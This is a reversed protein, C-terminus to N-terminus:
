DNFIDYKKLPTQPIHKSFNKIERFNGETPVELTIPMQINIQQPESNYFGEYILHQYVGFAIYDHTTKKIEDLTLIRRTKLKFYDTKKFYMKKEM